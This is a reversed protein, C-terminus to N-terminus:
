IVRCSLTPVFGRHFCFLCCSHGQEVSCVSDWMVATGSVWPPDSTNLGLVRGDTRTPERSLTHPGLLSCSSFFMCVARDQRVPLGDRKTLVVAIYATYSMPADAPAQRAAWFRPMACNGSMAVASAQQMSMTHLEHRRRKMCTALRQRWAESCGGFGRRQRGLYAVGIGPAGSLGLLQRLLLSCDFPIPPAWPLRAGASELLRPRCERLRRWSSRCTPRRSCPSRTCCTPWRCAGHLVSPSCVM